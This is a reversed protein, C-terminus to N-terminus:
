LLAKSELRQLGEFRHSVTQARATHVSRRIRAIGQSARLRRFKASFRRVHATEFIFVRLGKERLADAKGTSTNELPSWSGQGFLGRGKLAHCLRGSSWPAKQRDNSPPPLLNVKLSTTSIFSSSPTPMTHGHHPATRPKVQKVAPETTLAAPKKNSTSMGARARSPAMPDKPIVRVWISDPALVAQTQTGNTGM